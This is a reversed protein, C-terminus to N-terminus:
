RGHGGSKVGGGTVARVHLGSRRMAQSRHIYGIVVSVVRIFRPSPRHGVCFPPSSALMRSTNDNSGILAFHTQREMGEGSQRWLSYETRVPEFSLKTGERRKTKRVYRLVGGMAM